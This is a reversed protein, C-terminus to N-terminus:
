NTEIKDQFIPGLLRNDPDEAIGIDLTGVAPTDIFIMQICRRGFRFYYSDIPGPHVVILVIRATTPVIRLIIVQHHMGTFM